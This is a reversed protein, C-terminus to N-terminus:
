LWFGPMAQGIITFGTAIKDFITHQKYAALVGVPIAITISILLAAFALQFTAPIRDIVLRIADERHTLSEGFDGKSVDSLYSIYQKYVTRDFGMQKRFQEVMEETADDLMFLYTPDGSIKLIFFVLTITLFLVIITQFLRKIIYNLM